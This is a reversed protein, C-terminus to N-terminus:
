IDIPQSLISRLNSSAIFHTRGQSGVRQPPWSCSKTLNENENLNFCTFSGVNYKENRFDEPM